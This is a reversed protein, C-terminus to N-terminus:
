NLRHGKGSFPTFKPQSATTKRMLQNPSITPSPPPPPPPQYDLPQDFDVELDVNTICISSYISPTNQDIGVEVIYVNYEGLFLTQGKTLCTFTSLYKELIEKQQSHTALDTLTRLKVYRGKPVNIPVLNILDNEKLNLHLMMWYPLYVIRKEADDINHWGDIGCFVQKGDHDIRLNIPHNPKIYKLLSQLWTRHLQINGGTDTNIAQRAVFYEKRFM